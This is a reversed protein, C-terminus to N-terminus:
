RGSSELVQVRRKATLVSPADADADRWLTLFTRYARLADGRRGSRDYAQALGFHAPAYNPLLGIVRTYDAIAEDHRGLELCADALATEMDDIAWHPAHHKAVERFHRLAEDAKGSKLAIVGLAYNRFRPTVRGGRNPTERQAQARAMEVFTRDGHDLAWRIREMNYPHESSALRDLHRRLEDHRGRHRALWARYEWGRYQDAASRADAIYRQLEVDAAAYKGERAYTNALHVRAVEFDPRVDLARQFAARANPYDSMATYVLGLTDHANAAGRSVDVYKKAYELARDHRRMQNYVNALENHLEPAQEDVALGQTLTAVAADFQQEGQLLRGLRLHAEVDTPYTAIIERYLRIAQPYDFSVLAYWATINLRDRLTLRDPQSFAKELHPKATDALGWVVGYTYGIRAHAMAFKPDLAVARELLAIAEKTNLAHAQEVALSYCRYAELNDTMVDALRAAPRPGGLRAALRLSLLDIETLIQEPRDAVLQESAVLSGSAADYLQVDARLRTGLRGYSGLVIKQAHLDAALARARDLTIKSRPAGGRRVLLADLQQRGLLTLRESRSLGSILMDALGHRLWELETAGTENDLYLVLVSTKTPDATAATRRAGRLAFAASAVITLLVAAVTLYPVARQLTSRRPLHVAPVVDVAQPAPTEAPTAPPAAAPEDPEIEIPAVFRYGLRPLTRVYRPERPDDGLARRIDKVCQVLADDTVASDPWLREWLEQKTVIRDHNEVLFRLLHFTKHRLHIEAGDRELVGKRTDLTFDAFRYRGREFARLSPAPRPDASYDALM